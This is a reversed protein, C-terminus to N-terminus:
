ALTNKSFELIKKALSLSIQSFELIKKSFELIKGRFWPKPFKLKLPQRFIPSFILRTYISKTCQLWLRRHINLNMAAVVVDSMSNFQVPKRPQCNSPRQQSLTQQRWPPYYVSCQRSSPPLLPPQRRSTNPTPLASSNKRSANEGNSSSCEM